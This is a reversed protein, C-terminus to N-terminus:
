KKMADIVRFMKQKVASTSGTYNNIIFSFILPTGDAANLYGAYSCVDNIHGSKMHTQHIIPLCDYYTQYWKEQSVLYLIRAMANSTVRNGPSLGSGDIINIAAPDIGKDEWFRKEIAVGTDTCVPANEHLAITKVLQEGYLNISRHLFWYIISDLRPSIYTALTQSTFNVSENNNILLRITTPAATTSIGAQQLSAALSHACFLAPDPVSGSVYFKKNDQPATGRIYATHSYPATYIYTQDGSGPKGTRLENIFQLQEMAPSTGTIKVPDGPLNGPLLHLDYQNENWCLGSTGAGYYNGMDQWIWGDPPMQTDFASADGIIRGNIKKIGAQKIANVWQNVIVAMKTSPYRWSGLMPDGSGKIIINGNLVGNSIKGSYSLRTHYHFDKGLLFFSSAATITKQCSAPALGVEKNLAYIVKGTRKNLVTISTIAHRMQEDTTFRDLATKIHNSISQAALIRPAICCFCTITLWCVSLYKLIPKHDQLDTKFSITAKM